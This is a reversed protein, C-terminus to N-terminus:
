ARAWNCRTRNQALAQVVRAYSSALELAANRCASPHRLLFALFDLRRLSVVRCASLAEAKIGSLDDIIAYELCLIEGQRAMGLSLRRGNRSTTSLRVEGELLLMTRTAPRGERILVTGQPYHILEGFTELDNLGELSLGAVFSGTLTRSRIRPRAKKPLCQLASQISDEYGDHQIHENFFVAAFLETNSPM